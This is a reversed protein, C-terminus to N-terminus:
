MGRKLLKDVKIALSSLRSAAWFQFERAAQNEKDACARQLVQKAESTELYDIVQKALLFDSLVQRMQQMIKDQEETM